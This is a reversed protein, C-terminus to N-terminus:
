SERPELVVVPTATSRLAAYGDLDPEVARWREWLRQREEGTAERARVPRPAQGDLRVVAEPGAELNLWWAPHGEQWGNMALVVLDPGDEVYGLIVSRQEGSRRGTTTLHLAGWGRRNAPTWLFRGGSIRHLARHARWAARVFWSPPVRPPRSSATSM